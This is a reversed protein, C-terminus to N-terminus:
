GAGILAEVQETLQEDSIAGVHTGVVEGRADYFVTLPQGVLGLSDRIAGTRDFISPYPWGFEEIFARADPRADLVDVGLFQVQDGYRTAADALAPGEARCPGCWSAWVNVIVPTGRLGELLAAYSAVDHDPLATPSSPLTVAVEGSPSAASGGGCAPLLALVAIGILLRRLHMVRM